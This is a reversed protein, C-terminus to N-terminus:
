GIQAPGAARLAGIIRAAIGEDAGAALVVRASGAPLGLADSVDFVVPKATGQRLVRAHADRLQQGPDVGLEEALLTRCREIAALAEAQRGCGALVTAHAAQLGEDYPAEAALRALHALARQPEGAEIAAEGLACAADRRLSDLEDTQSPILGSGALAPGRWLALASELVAVREPGHADAAADIAARFRHLDLADQPIRLWYGAGDSELVASEGLNRELWERLRFIAVQVCARGSAPPYDGWVLDLLRDATVPRDGALLLVGLM